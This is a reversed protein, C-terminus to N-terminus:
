KSYIAKVYFKGYQVLVSAWGTSHRIQRHGAGLIDSPLTLFLMAPLHLIIQEEVNLPPFAVCNMPDYSLFALLSRTFGDLGAM